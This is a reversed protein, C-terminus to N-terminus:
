ANYIMNAVNCNEQLRSLIGKDQLLLQKESTKRMQKRSSIPTDKNVNNRLDEM